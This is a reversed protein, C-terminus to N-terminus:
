TELVTEEEKMMRFFTREILFSRVASAVAVRIWEIMVEFSSWHLERRKLTDKALRALSWRKCFKARRVTRM